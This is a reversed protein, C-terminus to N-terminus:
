SVPVEEKWFGYLGLDWVIILVENEIALAYNQKM